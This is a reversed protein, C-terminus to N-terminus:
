PRAPPNRIIQRTPQRIPCKRPLATRPKSTTDTGATPTPFIPADLQACLSRNVDRLTEIPLKARAEAYHGTASSPMKRNATRMWQQVRAVAKACSPDACIVQALFAWFTVADTYIRNRREPDRHVRLSEAPIETALQRSLGDLSQGGIDGCRTNLLEQTTRKARGCLLTSFGTLFPTKAQM